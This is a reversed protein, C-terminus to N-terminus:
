CFNKVSSLNGMDVEYVQLKQNCQKHLMCVCVVCVCVCVTVRVCM